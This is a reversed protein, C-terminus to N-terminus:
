AVDSLNTPLREAQKKTATQLNSELTRGIHIQSHTFPKNSINAKHIGEYVKDLRAYIEKTLRPYDYTARRTSVTTTPLTKKPM